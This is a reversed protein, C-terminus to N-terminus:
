TQKLQLVLPRLHAIHDSIQEFYRVIQLHFRVLKALAVLGLDGTLNLQCDLEQALLYVDDNSV